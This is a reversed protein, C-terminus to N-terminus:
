HNVKDKHSKGGLSSHSSVISDKSEGSAGTPLMGAPPLMMAAATLPNMANMMPSELSFDLFTSRPADYSKKPQWAVININTKTMTLHMTLSGLM